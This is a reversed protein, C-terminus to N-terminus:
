RSEKAKIIERLVDPENAFELSAIRYIKANEANLKRAAAQLKEGMAVAEAKLANQRADKERLEAPRAAIAEYESQILGGEAILRDKYLTVNNLVRETQGCISDIAAAPKEGVGLNRLEVSGRAFVNKGATRVIKLDNQTEKIFDRLEATAVEKRDIADQYQISLNNTNSIQNAFEQQLEATYNRNAFRESYKQVSIKLTLSEQLIGKYNFYTM